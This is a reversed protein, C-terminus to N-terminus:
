AVRATKAPPNRGAVDDPGFFGKSNELVVSCRFRGHFKNELPNMRFVCSEHLLGDIPRRLIPFIKIKFMAQQHRIAGDFKDVYHSMGQVIYRALDLKNSGHHVDGCCLLHFFRQATALTVQRFRLPERM